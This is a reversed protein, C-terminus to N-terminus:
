KFLKSMNNFSEFIKKDQISIDVKDKLADEIINFVGNISSYHLNPNDCWRNIYAQLKLVSHGIFPTGYSMSTIVGHLSSGIYLSANKILWVIDWVTPKEVLIYSNQDLYSAIDRLAIDDNHGMATGIPCLCLKKNFKSYIEKALEVLEEKHEKELGLNVQFFIYSNKIIKNEIVQRVNKILFDENYYKSLLIACDPMIPVYIGVKQLAAQTDGDRVSIYDVSKVINLNFKKKLFLPRYKLWSAGLSNYIICRFNNLENKGITFPYRTKPRRKLKYFWDIIPNSIYNTIRRGFYKMSFTMYRDIKPNVYSMITAWSVFLSEGGAVILFNENDPNVNYLIQYSYVKDGGVNTLDAESTSCMVIHDVYKRFYLSIIKSFLLDGYNFRDNPALIYLVKNKM